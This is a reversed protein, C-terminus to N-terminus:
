GEGEMEFEYEKPEYMWLGPHEELFEKALGESEFKLANKPHDSVESASKIYIPKSGKTYALIWLTM